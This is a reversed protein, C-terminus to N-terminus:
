GASNTWRRRRGAQPRRGLAGARRNRRDRAHVPGGQRIGGRCDGQCVRRAGSDAQRHRLFTLFGLLGTLLIAAFNAVLIRWRSGTISEVVTRSASDALDENLRIWEVAASNLREGLESTSTERLMEGAEERRGADALSMIQKARDLWERYQGRYDKLLRRDRDESILNREYQDLLRDLEADDREFTSRVSAREAESAALVHNRLQVRLDALIRSINGLTALSPVQLEAVFRSRTEITTLQWRTFVGLGTLALLPVALLLILRKAITM